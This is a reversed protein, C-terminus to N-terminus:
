APRRHRDLDAAWRGASGSRLLGSGVLLGAYGADLLRAAVDPHDIGSASVPCRTGTARVAALMGLSRGIDGPGRERAAIDKNNVAVICDSARHLRALEPRSAVEVFPTLGQAVCAEVLNQLTAAPLVAATLLVAAAGRDAAATVHRRSTVFDKWLVPLRTRSTVETLMEPTGGFWKGTVVSLCPAGAAEYEDVVEAISRGGLLDTGNSDRRKVEMIVPRDSAALAAIVDRSV